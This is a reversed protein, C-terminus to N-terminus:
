QAMRQSSREAPSALLHCVLKQVEGDLLHLKFKYKDPHKDICDLYKKMITIYKIIQIKM